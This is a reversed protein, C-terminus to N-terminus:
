GRGRLAPCRLTDQGGGWTVELSRDKNAVVRLDLAEYLDRFGQSRRARAERERKAVEEEPLRRIHDPTLTYLGHPNEETREAPVTEYPRVLAHRGLLGPLDALYEDVRGALAELERLRAGVDAAEGLEAELAGRRVGLGSLHRELDEDSISGKAALRIYGDREVEIEELEKRLRGSARDARLLLSRESELQAEVKGRLVEPDELLGLVFREVRSEVDKIRHFRVHECPGRKRHQSCVYYRRTNSLISTLSYGCACRLRGRLRVDPDDPIPWRTNGELRRRAALVWEPPVGCDPVPVAVWEARDKETIKLKRRRGYTMKQRSKGFWFIGYRKEPDLREAVEPEVLAAVEGAPLALYVDNKLVRKVTSINWYTKGKPTPVGEREFATKVATLSRGEKGVMWFMRRVLPMTEPNVEYAAGGGSYRFGYHTGNGGVLLGKRAKGLKGASTRKSAREREEEGVSDLAVLRAGCEELDEDLLLRHLRSRFFRDRSVAVAADIKGEQALRLIRLVGPRKPDAGSVGEDSLEEVIEWGMRECHRRLTRLQEPLSFGHKRQEDTSVRIYTAVRLGM